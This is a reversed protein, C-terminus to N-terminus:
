RKVSIPTRGSFAASRSIKLKGSCKTSIIPLPLHAPLFVQYEHRRYGPTSISGHQLGTQFHISDIAARLWYGSLQRVAFYDPAPSHSPRQNVAIL